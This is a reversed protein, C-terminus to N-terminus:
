LSQSNLVKTLMRRMNEAIINYEQPPYENEEFRSFLSPSKTSLPQALDAALKGMKILFQSLNKEPIKKLDDDKLLHKLIRSVTVKGQYEQTEGSAAPPAQNQQTTNVTGVNVNVTPQPSKERMNNKLHLLEIEEKIRQRELQIKDKDMEIVRIKSEEEDKIREREAEIKKQEMTITKQNEKELQIDKDKLQIEHKHQMHIDALEIRRRKKFITYGDELVQCPTPLAVQSVGADERAVQQISGNSQNNDILESVLSPDGAFYRQLVSAFKTRIERANVGPLAMILKLAGQFTILTTEKQGPGKFQLNGGNSSVEEQVSQPLRDIIQSAQKNNKGTFVKVVDIQALRVGDEYRQYRVCADLGIDDLRMILNGHQDREPAAAANPAVGVRQEPM